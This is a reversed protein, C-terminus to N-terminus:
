NQWARVAVRSVARARVLRMSFKDPRAAGSQQRGQAVIKMAGRLIAANLAELNPIWYAEVSIPTFASKRMRSNGSLSPSAARGKFADHWAKFSADEDMIGRGNLILFGLGQAEVCSRVADADNLQVDDDLSRTTGALPMMQEATHAKLDWVHNLSYDFFTNGFKIQPPFPNPRFSGSLVEKGRFEFYFGPWEMQNEQRTGEDRLWETKERGDWASEKPRLLKQWLADVLAAGEGEPTLGEAYETGLRGLKREAGALLINLGDLRITEGTSIFRDGWPVGLRQAIAGGLQTKTLGDQRLDPLLKTALNILVSKHEKSGPGLWEPGSQTLASIRTVVEIKSVAPQFKAWDPGDLGSAQTPALARLSGEQYAISAGYLLVNVGELTLTTRDVHVDTEWELGLHHAISRGLVANTEVAPIDLDLADRLAILARKEGRTGEPAVGTLAGIRTVAEAISEAPIFEPEFRDEAM